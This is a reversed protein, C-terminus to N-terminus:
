VAKSQYLGAVAKQGERPETTKSTLEVFDFTTQAKQSFVPADQANLYQLLEKDCQIARFRIFGSIMLM